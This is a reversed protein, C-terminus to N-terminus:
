RVERRRLTKKLVSSVEYLAPSDVINVIKQCMHDVCCFEKGEKGIEVLYLIILEVKSSGVEYLMKMFKSISLEKCYSM